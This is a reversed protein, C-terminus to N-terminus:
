AAGVEDVVTGGVVGAGKARSTFATAEELVADLTLKDPDADPPVPTMMTVHDDLPPAEPVAAPTADAQLMTLRGSTVPAFVKVMVADVAALRTEFDTVMVRCDTVVVPEPPPPVSVM